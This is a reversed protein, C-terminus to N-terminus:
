DTVVPMEPVKSRFGNLYNRLKLGDDTVFREYFGEFYGMLEDRFVCRPMLCCSTEGNHTLYLDYAQRLTLSNGAKFIDPHADVFSSVSAGNVGNVGKTEEGLAKDIGTQTVIARTIFVLDVHSLSTMVSRLEDEVDHHKNLAAQIEPKNIDNHYQVRTEVFREALQKLEDIHLM